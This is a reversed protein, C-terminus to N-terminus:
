STALQHRWAWTAPRARAARPRGARPRSWTPPRPRPSRRSWCTSIATDAGSPTAPPRCPWPRARSPSSRLSRRPGGPASRARPHAHDGRPPHRGPRRQARRRGRHPPRDRGRPHRDGRDGSSPTRRAPLRRGGGRALGLRARPRERCRPGRPRRWPRRRGGGPDTSLPATGDATDMLLRAGARRARPDGRRVVGRRRDPRRRLVDDEGIGRRAACQSCVTLTGAPSCRRSCTPWRRPSPSGSTTPVARARRVLHGRRDAM